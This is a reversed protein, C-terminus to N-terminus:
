FGRNQSHLAALQADRLIGDAGSAAPPEALRAIDVMQQGTEPQLQLYKAALGSLRQPRNLYAWEADLVSLAEKEKMMQKALQQNQKKLEYVEWKVLYLGYAALVLLIFSILSGFRLSM